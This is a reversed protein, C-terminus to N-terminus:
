AAQKLGECIFAPTKCKGCYISQGPRGWIAVHGCGCIYKSKSALVRAKKVVDEPAAKPLQLECRDIWAQAAQAFKGDEVIEHTASASGGFYGNKPVTPLFSVIVGDKDRKYSMRQDIAVPKLGISMMKEGWEINHYGNTSFNGYTYQWLHVMEHVLTSLVQITKRGMTRPNLAIVCKKEGQYEISDPSFFGHANAKRTVLILCDPLEGNFLTNNFYTFSKNLDTFVKKTTTASM